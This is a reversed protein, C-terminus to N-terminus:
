NKSTFNEIYKFLRTKTIVHGLDCQSEFPCWYRIYRYLKILHQVSNSTLDAVCESITQVMSVKTM